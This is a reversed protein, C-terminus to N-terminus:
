RFALGILDARADLALHLLATVRVDFIERRPEVHGLLPLAREDRCPVNVVLRDGRLVAGRNHENGDLLRAAIEDAARPEIHRRRSQHDGVPVDHLVRLATGGLAHFHNEVVRVARPLAPVYELDARRVFEREDLDVVGARIRHDRTDRLLRGHADARGHRDHAVREARARGTLL